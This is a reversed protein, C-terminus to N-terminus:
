AGDEYGARDNRPPVRVPARDQAKTLVPTVQRLLEGVHEGCVLVGSVQTRADKPSVTAQGNHHQYLCVACKWVNM